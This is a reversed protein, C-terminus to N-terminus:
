FDKIRDDLESKKWQIIQFVYAMLLCIGNKQVGMKRDEDIDLCSNFSSLLENRYKEDLLSIDFYDDKTKSKLYEFLTGDKIKQKVEEIPFNYYGRDLLYNLSFALGTLQMLRM